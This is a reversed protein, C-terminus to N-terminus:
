DKNIGKWKRKEEEYEERTMVEYRGRKDNQIRVYEERSYTILGNEPVVIKQSFSIPISFRESEQTHFSINRVFLIMNEREKLVKMDRELMKQVRDITEKRISNSYTNKKDIYTAMSCTGNLRHEMEFFDLIDLSHKKAYRFISNIMDLKTHGKVPKCVLMKNDLNIVPLVEDIDKPISNAEKMENEVTKETIQASDTLHEITKEVAVEMVKQNTKNM